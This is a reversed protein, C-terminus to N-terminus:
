MRCCRKVRLTPLMPLNSLAVLDMLAALYDLNGHIDLIDAWKSWNVEEALSLGPQTADDSVGPHAFGDEALSSGPPTEDDSVGPHAFGERPDWPM